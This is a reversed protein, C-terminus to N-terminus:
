LQSNTYGASAKRAVTFISQSDVALLREKWLDRFCCIRIVFVWIKSPNGYNCLPEGGGGETLGWSM